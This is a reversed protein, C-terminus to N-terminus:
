RGHGHRLLLRGPITGSAVPAAEAIEVILVNTLLAVNLVTTKEARAPTDRATAATLKGAASM